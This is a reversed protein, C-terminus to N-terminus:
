FTLDMGVTITRAPPFVGLDIGNGGAAAIVASSPLEPTYGTYDTMVFVNTANLYIRGQAMGVHSMWTQPLRYGLQVNQLKLFSGDEIFRDSAQYNHGANTM